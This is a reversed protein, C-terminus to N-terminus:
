KKTSELIEEERVPVEATNIETSLKATSVNQPFLNTVIEHLLNLCSLPPSRKDKVKLMITKCAIRDAHLVYKDWLRTNRNVGFKTSVNWNHVGVCACVHFFRSGIILNM